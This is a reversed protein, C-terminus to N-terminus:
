RAIVQRVTALIRDPDGELHIPPPLPPPPNKIGAGTLVLVVRTGSDAEGAEKM